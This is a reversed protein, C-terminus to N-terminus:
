SGQKNHTLKGVRINRRKPKQFGSELEHIREDREELLRKLEAIEKKASRLNKELTQYPVKKKPMTSTTRKREPSESYEKVLEAYNVRNRRKRRGMTVHDFADDLRDLMQHAIAGHASMVGNFLICNEFVLVLDKRLGDVTAYEQVREQEITRFDMPQTVKQLYEHEIEPVQELVPTTFLEEEDLDRLYSLVKAAVKRVDTSEFADDLKDLLQNAIKGYPSSAGNYLICNQFTLILDAQLDSISTYTPIREEEITRFDMPKSVVQMYRDKIQPLAELVPVAFINEKDKDRLFSLVGRAVRPIDDKDVRPWPCVGAARFDVRHVSDEEEEEGPEKKIKSPRPNNPVDRVTVIRRKPKRGERIRQIRGADFRYLTDAGRIVKFNQYAKRIKWTNDFTSEKRLWKVGQYQTYQSDELNELLVDAEVENMDGQDEEAFSRITNKMVEKIKNGGKGGFRNKHGTWFLHAVAGTWAFMNRQHIDGNKRESWAIGDKTPTLPLKGDIDNILVTLGQTYDVGSSSLGLMHRADIHQKILRGAQCSYIYLMCTSTGQKLRLDRDVRQADFGCYINLPHKGAAPQDWDEEPLESFPQDVPIHVTFKTLEVLRRQWYSFDIRERDIFFDFSGRTPLNIYYEPLMKKIDNLFTKAPHTSEILQHPVVDASKKLKCIVLQFVHDDQDWGHNYLNEAYETVQQHVDVTPGFANALADMIEPNKSLWKDMIEEVEDVNQVNFCFSPLCVGQSSQLEKAIIGIEMTGFNRSLVISCDSLTACGHKLGVGNEGISDKNEDEELHANKSSKYVTLAYELRKIPTQSNNQISIATARSTEMAVRGRFGPKLAADFCNDLLDLCASEPKAFVRTWSRWMGQGDVATGKSVSNSREERDPAISRVTDPTSMVMSRRSTAGLDAKPMGTEPSM